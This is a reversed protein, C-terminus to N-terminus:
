KLECYCKKNIKDSWTNQINIIGIYNRDTNGKKNSHTVNTVNEQKVNM